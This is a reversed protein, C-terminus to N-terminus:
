EIIAGLSRGPVWIAIDNLDEAPNVGGVVVVAQITPWYSTKWTPQFPM